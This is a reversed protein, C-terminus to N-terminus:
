QRKYKSIINEMIIRRNRNMILSVLIIIDILILGVFIGLATILEPTTIDENGVIPAFNFVSLATFLM